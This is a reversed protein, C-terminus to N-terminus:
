PVISDWRLHRIVFESSSRGALLHAHCGTACVRLNDLCDRLLLSVYYRLRSSGYGHHHHHHRHYRGVMEAVGMLIVHGRYELWIDVAPM